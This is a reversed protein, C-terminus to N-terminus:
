EEETRNLEILKQVLVHIKTSPNVMWPAQSNEGYAYDLLRVANAHAEEMRDTLQEVVSTDGKNYKRGLIKNLKSYIEKRGMGSNRFEFHLLYWLEFCENSWIAKISNEGKILDFAQQYSEHDDRDFVCYVEIFPEKSKKAEKQLAIGTRVVRAPDGAGGETVIEVLDEDYPFSKLYDVSSKSDESVILYRRRKRIIERRKPGKLRNYRAMFKNTLRWILFQEL